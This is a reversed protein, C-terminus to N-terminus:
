KKCIDRFSYSILNYFFFNNFYYEEYYINLDLHDSNNRRYQM